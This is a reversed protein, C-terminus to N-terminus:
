NIKPFHQEDNLWHKDFNDAPESVIGKKYDFPCEPIDFLEFDLWYNLISLIQSDSLSPPKVPTAEAEPTAVAKKNLQTPKSALDTQRGFLTNVLEKLSFRM